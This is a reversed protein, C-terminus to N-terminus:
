RVQMLLNQPSVPKQIFECGEPINENQIKDTTCGSMFIVKTGPRQKRIEEHVERGSMRAMSVM